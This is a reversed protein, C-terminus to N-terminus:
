EGAEVAAPEGVGFVALAEDLTRVTYITGRWCEHFEVQKENLEGGDAKVEILATFPIELEQHWGAAVLDPFGGGIDATDFVSIGCERLGDRIVAHNRDRHSHKM